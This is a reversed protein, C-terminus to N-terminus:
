FCLTFGYRSGTESLYRMIRKVAIWHEETPDGYFRAVDNVAYAIDPKIKTSLYLFHGVASQYQVKDLRRSEELGKTLKTGPSIPTNVPKSSEMSFIKLM